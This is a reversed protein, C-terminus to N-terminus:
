SERTILRAIRIMKREAWVRSWSGAAGLNNASSANSPGGSPATGIYAHGNFHMCWEVRNWLIEEGSGTGQEPKRQVETPVKPTSEGFRAIGTGLIWTHFIGSATAAPAEAAPNPLGDDVIVTRGLFTPIQTKGDSDPIFDILNNKQMRAYVISHVMIATLDEMSDGMTVCADIFGSANFDTVGATYGAGSIDLTMDNQTHTDSGAPAAANDAFIGTLTAVFAKQQRRAWYTGVRQAVSAMPDAGALAASLDMSSWSQNRSLRVAVEKSTGTKKPTAATTDDTAVNETDSGPLDKWSPANFTLGGGALFDNLEADAVMVGSQILRSKERTIQQAYPTFLSPVVVDAIQTTAM